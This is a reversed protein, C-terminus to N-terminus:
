IQTGDWILYGDGGFREKNFLKLYNPTIKYIRRKSFLKINEATIQTEVGPNAKHWLMLGKALELVNTVPECVGTGQIGIKNDTIKQHSDFINFAVNNNIKLVKGHRTEPGTVVYLILEDDCGYYITNVWPNKDAVALTM